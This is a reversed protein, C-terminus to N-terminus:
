LRPFRWLGARLAVTGALTFLLVFFTNFAIALWYRVPSTERMIPSSPKQYLARGWGTQMTALDRRVRLAGFVALLFFGLSVLSIPNFRM